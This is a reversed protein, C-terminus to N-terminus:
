AVTPITLQSSPFRYSITWDCSRSRIPAANCTSVTGITKFEAPDIRKILGVLELPMAFYENKAYNFVLMRQKAPGSSSIKVDSASVERKVEGGVQAVDTFKLDLETVLGNIDLILAVKGDGLVTHGSYVTSSRFVKPNARVIIEQIGIVDDVIVGFLHKRYQLVVLCADKSSKSTHGNLDLAQPLDVLAILRDRLQYVDRGDVQTIASWASQNMRIIESVATEPIAIREGQVNIVLAETLSSSVLAKALPLIASITSGQGVRTNVEISGGVNEINNRVVDMGVGRGSVDTAQDKTSFGPQFILMVKDQESLGAAAERTIVGKEIAKECVKAANIGRGDDAVELIIEGSHIYSRLHLNGQRNKGAAEREAPTELAHDLCNRILHTLPDAFSELITRDLELDGGEIHFAVEKGLQRALDRVVRRYREFLSGTTQMRTEIVTEHVGSIAQSLTRFATSDSFDFENLLQNRAMVMTGTLDLLKQLITVPVRM